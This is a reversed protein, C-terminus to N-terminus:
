GASLLWYKAIIGAFFALAISLLILATRKNNASAPQPPQHGAVQDTM